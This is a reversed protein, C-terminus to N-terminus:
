RQPSGPEDQEHTQTTSSGAHMGHMMGGMMAMMMLPCILAIGVFALTGAPVGFWLAGVLAIATAVAFMGLNSNRTMNTSM